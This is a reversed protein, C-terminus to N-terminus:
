QVRVTAEGTVVQIPRQQSDKANVQVISLQSNGPALGKVVIGVLTGSGSVGPTNPMRTASIIAQGREKDVREVIAVEQTGGSLFGGQRVDEISIVAPNFQLLMPISYLDQVNQVTVGITTTEGPKLAATGPEFQLTANQSAPHMRRRPRWPRPSGSGSPSCARSQPKPAEPLLVADALRVEANTDTGSAISRLNEATISPLRM